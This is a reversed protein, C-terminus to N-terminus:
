RGSAGHAYGRDHVHSLAMALQAALSRAADLQSLRKGSAEKADHDQLNWRAPRTVLCPHTGNPGSLELKDLVAPILSTKDDRINGRVVSQSMRSLIGLESHDSDSTGVKIAVHKGVHEDIALWVTSFAGYGLKHVIRYRENTSEITSISQIIAA